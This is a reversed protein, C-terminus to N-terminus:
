VIRSLGIGYCGMEYFRDTGDEDVFTAGLPKSYRTGLQYTHGLVIGRALQLRGGDRPCPDGPRFRARDERRDSRRDRDLKAGTVQPDPQSAGAVWKRGGRVSHDAVVLVDESLGQPGVFGKVLGLGEFDADEFLRVPAPWMVRGVKDDSVERDGAVLVAVTRGGADYLITKLLEGAPRELLESVAQITSRGPTDVERLPALDGA